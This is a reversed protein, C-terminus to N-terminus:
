FSLRGRLRVPISIRDDSVFNSDLAETWRIGTEVGIASRGGVAWEAGVVGSATPSWGGDVYTQTFVAPDVLTASSQSVTVDETRTFGGTAGIYPRMGTPQGMYHRFGGELTYQELDSYEVFFDETVVGDGVTGVNILNGDAKNYGARALLTTNPSVDYTATVDAGKSNDWADDYGIAPLDSVILGSTADTKGKEGPFIDGDVFFDQGGGLELGFPLAGGFGGGSFQNFGGFGGASYYAPYPQPVYIPAGQITQVTGAGQLTQIGGVASGFPAAGGLTTIGNGIGGFAGAGGGLTTIGSGVGGLGAGAAGLGTGLAGLGGAGAGYLGTGAGYLGTGAGYAGAGAGYAGAGYAGAGAGYAGAGYAGAGYGGAGASQLGTGYGNVGYAGRLGGGAGYMGGGAGAGYMGGGGAGGYAVNYGAGPACGGGAGNGGQFGYAQNGYAAGGSMPACGYAGNGGQGYSYSDGYGYGGGSGMWSCGSLLVTSLAVVALRM